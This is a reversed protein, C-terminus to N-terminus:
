PEAQHIDLTKIEAETLPPDPNPHVLNAARDADNKIETHLDAACEQIEALDDRVEDRPRSLDGYLDSIEQIIDEKSALHYAPSRDNMRDPEETAELPAPKIGDYIGEKIRVKIDSPSLSKADSIVLDRNMMNVKPVLIQLNTKARQAIDLLVDLDVGLEVHFRSAVQQCRQRSRAGMQLGGADRPAACWAPFNLYDFKKHIGEAEAKILYLGISIYNQGVQDQAHYINDRLDLARQLATEEPSASEVSLVPQDELM